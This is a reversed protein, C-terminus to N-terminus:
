AELKSSLQELEGNQYMAEIQDPTKYGLKQHLRKSNFFEVYEAVDRFLDKSVDYFHHSLEEVKMSSFFSEAVANDYPIGPYSFSQKVGLGRLFTRFKYSTYQTGQDSHFLLGDPRDRLEFAKLFTTIILEATNNPAIEYALVKRSFLDIVVCIAYFDKAVRVYTVDSVWVLNPATQLFQQKLKNRRYMYKRNSSSFYKLQTQKSKINLEKMYRRLRKLSVEYGRNELEAKLKRTGYREKSEDFIQQVIPRIEADEKEWLPQEPSRLSHHYYTSRLVNLTRCLLHISYKNSLRDIGSLKESLPADIYCGCTKLIENELRLRELESEMSTIKRFTVAMNGNTSRHMRDLQLYNYISSRSVGFREMLEKIPVNKSYLRVIEDRTEQLIRMGM